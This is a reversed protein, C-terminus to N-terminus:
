QRAPAASHSQPPRRPQRLALPAAPPLQLPTFTGHCSPHGCRRQLRCRGTSAPRGSLHHKRPVLLHKRLQTHGPAAPRRSSCVVDTDPHWICPPPPQFPTARPRAMPCTALQLRLRLHLYNVLWMWIPSQCSRLVPVVLRHLQVASPAPLHHHVRHCAETQPAQPM